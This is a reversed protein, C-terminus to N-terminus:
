PRPERPTKVNDDKRNMLYLTGTNTHVNAANTVSYRNGWNTHTNRNSDLEGLGTREVCFLGSGQVSHWRAMWPGLQVTLVARTDYTAYVTNTYM